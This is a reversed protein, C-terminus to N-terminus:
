ISAGRPNPAKRARAQGKRITEIAGQRQQMCIEKQHTYLHSYVGRVLIKPEKKLELCLAPLEEVSLGYRNMGTNVKIHVKMPLSYKKCFRLILRATREDTVSAIFGNIALYYCEEEDMPPTFVLIERGCASTRIAIAEEILAVAFVKVYPSLANTVEEAGHGYANAKVVACLPTKTWALIRNANYCINQLSIKAKVKQM